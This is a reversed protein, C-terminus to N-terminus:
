LRKMILVIFTVAIIVVIATFTQENNCLLPISSGSGCVSQFLNSMSFGSGSSTASGTDTTTTDTTGTDTTTTDPTTTDTAPTTDTSAPTDTPTTNTKGPTSTEGCAKQCDKCLQSTATACEKTCSGGYKTKCEDLASSINKSTQKKSATTTQLVPKAAPQNAAHQKCCTDYTGPSNKFPACQDSCAATAYARALNAYNYDSGRYKRLVPDVSANPICSM